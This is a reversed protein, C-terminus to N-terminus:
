SASLARQRSSLDIASLLAAAAAAGRTDVPTVVVLPVGPALVDGRFYPFRLRERIPCAQGAISASNPVAVDGVIASGDTMAPAGVSACTGSAAAAM